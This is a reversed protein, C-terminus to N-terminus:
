GKRRRWWLQIACAASSRERMSDIIGARLAAAAFGEPTVGHTGGRAADSLNRTSELLAERYLKAAELEGFHPALKKLMAAFESPDQMGNRDTLHIRYPTQNGSQMSRANVNDDGDGSIGSKLSRRFEKTTTM